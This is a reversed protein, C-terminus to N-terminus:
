PSGVIGDRERRDREVIRAVEVRSSAGVKMFLNRIHSEVTKKSLFLKAAIEPNTLRDTILEAIELERKTLSGLGSDDGTAPGRAEARAGLKRLERRVADRVRASGCEDLVQEARRLIAIARKRDGAAALARGQLERAYAAPLRAGVVEFGDAAAEAAQAAGLADGAFLQVAARARGALAAPVRLALLDAQEEARSAYAEAADADGRALEALALIEWYFCREVPIAHELEGGGISHLVEFGRDRDGMEFLTAALPWGPGGSAAPMTAGALRGGARASAECAGAAADLDGLYYHAWGLEFLAWFLYHPNASLRASEVAAECLQLAGSLRGQMELAYPKVLMMPILLRGEGTARAIAIGRDVHAIAADYQELYNEAWGLYFLAELRPALEADTLREIQAQAEERHARAADVRGAVAEGLCLASAAEAILARDGLANASELAEAGMAITREYDRAYLGDVALEIRLSAAATTSRDMVEDWARALRQGADEHRGQWHEAAACLSTLEVRRDTAEPPLLAIADILTDRCAELQGVSRLASAFAVRVAVQRETDAHPLLRLAAQYWRAATAPARPAAARGAELLTEIAQEDRQAASQEVHHAREAAAAGRAALADAARAHAAIRWGGRVSEYVSARVLPHRFSFRRPVQTPRVLDAALLDDLADLAAAESLEGIAAALDPEFPEGAVAAADLLRRSRTSLSELEGAIAGGVAAPVGIRDEDHGGDLVGALQGTETARGLQELYFPNGGGHRYITAMATPDVQALLEAAETESLQELELRRVSPQTAAAALRESAQGPRFALALLVPASPARRVLAAILEISAGDSWHLDDLVLVLPQEGAILTLLQSVARHARYREDPVAGPAGNARRLSPLVQGLESALEPTWAAAQDFDQSVVYADLADVWVSFPLEREFEAAVGALVVHGRDEARARLEHLLRTKGIGPEGELTLCAAAGQDLADLAAELHGLERDRGVIASTASDV